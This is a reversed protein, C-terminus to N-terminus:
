VVGAGGGRRRRSADGVVRRKPPKTSGASAKSRVRPPSHDIDERAQATAMTLTSRGFAAFILERLEDPDMGTAVSVIRMEGGAVLRM